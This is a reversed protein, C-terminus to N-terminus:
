VDAGLAERLRAALSAKGPVLGGSVLVRGNVLLAPTAVPGYAAIAALDKVHAVDAALGMESLVELALTHLHECRPCGAGLIRIVIAGAASMAREPTLEGRWVRYDLELAAAYKARVKDPIYNHKAAQEALWAGRAGPDGPAQAAAREYIAALEVLGRSSGDVYIHRVGPIM